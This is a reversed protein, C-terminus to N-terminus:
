YGDFGEEHVIVISKCKLNVLMLEYVGPGVSICAEIPSLALYEM